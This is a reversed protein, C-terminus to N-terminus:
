VIFRMLDLNRPFVGQYEFAPTALRSTELETGVGSKAPLPASITSSGFAKSRREDDGQIAYIGAFGGPIHLNTQSHKVTALAM